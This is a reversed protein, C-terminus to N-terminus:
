RLVMVSGSATLDKGGCSYRIKYVFLGPNVKKGQYNGDWRDSVNTTAFVKNGWKDFIEFRQLNQISFPNSIFYEDNRGDDNPTFANAMPVMGCEIESPDIVNVIVSDRAICNSYVFDAYYTTTSSPTAETSFADPETLNGVPSWSIEPACSTGAVLTLDNGVYVTTDPTQIFDTPLYLTQIEDERLVRNYVRLEDILGAFRRDTTGLCPSDAIKMTAASTMDLNGMVRTDAVFQGNIYLEQVNNGKTIAVHIWCREGAIRHIFRAQRDPGEIIDVSITRSAPTYRVAFANQPNCGDRKSLIDHTGFPNTVQFFFSISFNGLDKFYDGNSVTGLLDVFNDEGNFSLANGIVGCGITPPNDSLVGNSNGNGGIDTATGDDFPYYAIIGTSIQASGLTSCFWLILILVKKM